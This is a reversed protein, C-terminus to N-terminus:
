RKVAEDDARASGGSVEAQRASESHAQEIVDTQVAPRAKTARAQGRPPPLRPAAAPKVATAAPTEEQRRSADSRFYIVAVAIVLALGIVLGLRADNPM